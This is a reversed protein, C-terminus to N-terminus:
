KKIKFQEVTQIVKDYGVMSGIAVAIGMVIMTAINIASFSVSELVYFIATGGIGVIAAVICALLNASYKIEKEILIKKIGEVCLGTIVSFAAFLTAFLSITM